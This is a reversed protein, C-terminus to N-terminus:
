RGVLMCLVYVYTRTGRPSPGGSRAVFRCPHVSRNDCTLTYWYVHVYTSCVYERVTEYHVYTRVYSFTIQAHTFICAIYMCAHYTHMNHIYTHVYTRTRVTSVFFFHVYPTYPSITCPPTCCIHPYPCKVRPHAQKCGM